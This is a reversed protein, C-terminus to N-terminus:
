EVSYYEAWLYMIPDFRLNGSMNRGRGRLRYTNSIGANNGTANDVVFICTSTTASSYVTTGTQVVYAPASHDQAVPNDNADVLEWLVQPCGVVLSSVVRQTANFYVIWRGKPLAIQIGNYTVPNNLNTSQLAATPLIPLLSADNPVVGVVTPVDGLTGHEFVGVDAGGKSEIFRKETSPVAELGRVRMTGVVHLKATPISTGVGMYGTNNLVIVDDSDQVGVSPTDGKADVHFAGLANTTNVGVGQAQLKFLVSVAFIALLINIKKM